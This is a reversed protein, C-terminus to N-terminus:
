FVRRIPLYPITETTKCTRKARYRSLFRMSIAFFLPGKSFIISGIKQILDKMKCFHFFITKKIEGCVQGCLRLFPGQVGRGPPAFLPGLDSQTGKNRCISVGSSFEGLVSKVCKGKWYEYKDLVEFFKTKVRGMVERLWNNFFILNCVLPKQWPPFCLQFLGVAPASGALLTLPAIETIALLWTESWINMAAICCFHQFAYPWHGLLQVVPQYFWSTM